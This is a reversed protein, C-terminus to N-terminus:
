LKIESENMRKPLGNCTYKIAQIHILIENEHYDQFPTIFPQKNDNRIYYNLKSLFINIM